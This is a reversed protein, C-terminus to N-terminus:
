IKIKQNLEDQIQNFIEKTKQEFDPDEKAKDISEQVLNMQTKQYEEFKDMEIEIGKAALQEVIFEILFTLQVISHYNFDLRMEHSQLYKVVEASTSTQQDQM